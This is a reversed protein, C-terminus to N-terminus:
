RSVHRAANSEADQSPLVKRLFGVVADPTADPDAYLHFWGGPPEDPAGHTELSWGFGRQWNLFTVGAALRERGPHVSLRASLPKRADIAISEVAVGDRELEDAVTDLYASTTDVDADTPRRRKGGGTTITHVRRGDHDNRDELGSVAV